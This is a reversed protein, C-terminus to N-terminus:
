HANGAGATVALATAHGKFRDSVVKSLLATSPVAGCIGVLLFSFYLGPVSGNLSALLALAGAFLAYGVVLVPRSGFRDALYGSLPYILAASAAIIMLVLSFTARPWGFEETVPILFTGFVAHVAPTITVANGIAGGALYPVAGARGRRESSVILDAGTLDSLNTAM